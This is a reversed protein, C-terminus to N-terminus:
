DHSMELIDRMSDLTRFRVRGTPPVKNDGPCQNTLPSGCLEINGNAVIKVSGRLYFQRGHM